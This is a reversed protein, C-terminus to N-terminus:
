LGLLVFAALAATTDQQLHQQIGKSDALELITTRIPATMRYGNETM